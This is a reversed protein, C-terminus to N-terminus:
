KMKFYVKGESYWSQFGKSKLFDIIPAPKFPATLELIEDKKLEKSLRIIEQMPSDGSNIFPSADFRIAIKTEDFWEPQPTQEGDDNTDNEDIIDNSTLGAAKRLTLVMEVPSLGAMQAAQRITAIKAVTKRLIPNKLKAFDPSLELLTNELDPYADLLAAIKTQLNIEM